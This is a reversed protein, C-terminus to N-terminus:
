ILRQKLLMENGHGYAALENATAWVPKIRGAEKYQNLVSVSRVDPKIWYITRNNVVQERLISFNNSTLDIHWGEEQAERLAAALLDEGEEVKGGPFGLFESKPRTTAALLKTQNCKVVVFVAKEQSM